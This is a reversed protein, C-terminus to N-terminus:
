TELTAFKFSVDLKMCVGDHEYEVVIVLVVRVGHEVHEDHECLHVHEDHEYVDHMKIHWPTSMSRNHCAFTM